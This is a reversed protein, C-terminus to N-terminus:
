IPSSKIFLHLKGGPQNKLNSTKTSVFPASAEHQHKTAIDNTLSLIPSHRNLSVRQTPMCWVIKLGVCIIM